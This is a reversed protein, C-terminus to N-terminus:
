HSIPVYTMFGGPDSLNPGGSPAIPAVLVNGNSYIWVFNNAGSVPVGMAEALKAAFPAGGGSPDSATNCADLEVRM